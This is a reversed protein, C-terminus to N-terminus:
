DLFAALTANYTGAQEINALHAAPLSALRSGPVAAHIAEGLAPPTSPDADGVIVLTPAAIAALTPRQDMDRLAACCGLYGAPETALLTRRVPEIAEPSRAHFAPTFWRALTPEAVAAMGHARVLAMRESWVDPPGMWAATNSLVLRDVHRAAHVALWMAVMGGMSLGCVHARPIALATLLELVDEGLRPLTYDGAPADSRGHGRADPRLLRFRDGLAEVQPAWMDMSAGLSHLLLLVPADAPGNLRYALDCGDSTTISHIM